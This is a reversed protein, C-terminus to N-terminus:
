SKTCGQCSKCDNECVDYVYLMNYFTSFKYESAPYSKVQSNSDTIRIEDKELLIRIPFMELQEIDMWGPKQLAGIHVEEGCKDTVEIGSQISTISVVEGDEDFVLSNKDGHIGVPNNDYAIIMGISTNVITPMAPEISKITGNEYFAIGIRTEIEGDKVKVKATEGAYLTISKIPGNEYFCISSLKNKISVANVDFCIVPSLEIEDNESWTGSVKGYTPFLRHIAGSEYFTMFECSISGVSTKIDTSKEIYISKLEGNQYFEMAERDRSRTESLQYKPILKGFSTNIINEGNFKCSRISGDEFFVTAFEHNLDGYKTRVM